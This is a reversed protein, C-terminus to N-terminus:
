SVTVAQSEDPSRQADSAVVSVTVVYTGAGSYTHFAGPIGGVGWPGTMTDTAADGWEISASAITGDFSWTNQNIDLEVLLGTASWVFGAVPPPNTVIPAPLENEALLTFDGTVVFPSDGFRDGSSVKNLEATWSGFPTTLLYGPYGILDRLARYTATDPVFMPLSLTEPKRGLHDRYVTAVGPEVAPMLAEAVEDEVAHQQARGASFAVTDFTSEYDPAADVVVRVGWQPFLRM